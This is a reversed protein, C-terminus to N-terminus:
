RHRKEEREGEGERDRHREGWKGEIVRARERGKGKREIM